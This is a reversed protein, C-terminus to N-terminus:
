YSLVTWHIECGFKRAVAPLQPSKCNADIDTKRFHCHNFRQYQRTSCAVPDAGDLFADVKREWQPQSM